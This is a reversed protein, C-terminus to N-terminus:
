AMPPLPATPLQPVKDVPQAYRQRHALGFAWNDVTSRQPRSLGWPGSPAAVASRPTGCRRASFSSAVASFKGLYIMLSRSKPFVQQFGIGMRTEPRNQDKEDHDNKIVSTIM